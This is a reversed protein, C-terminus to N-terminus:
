QLFYYNERSEEKIYHINNKKNLNLNKYYCSLIPRKSHTIANYGQCLVEINGNNFISIEEIDELTIEKSLSVRKVGLDLLSKASYKNTTYTQLDLIVKNILNNEKFLNLIGLDSVIFGDINLIKLKNIIKKFKLIDKESAFINISLYIKKNKGKIENIARPLEKLSLTYEQNICFNKFGIIFSNIHTDLFPTYGLKNTNLIINMFDGM